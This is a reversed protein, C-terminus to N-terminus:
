VLTQSPFLLMTIINLNQQSMTVIEGFFANEFKHHCCFLHVGEYPSLKKKGVDREEWIGRPRHGVDGSNENGLM